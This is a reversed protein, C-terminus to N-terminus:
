GTVICAHANAASTTPSEAATAPHAVRNGASGPLAVAATTNTSLWGRSRRTNSSRIPDPAVSRATATDFAATCPRVWPVADSTTSM